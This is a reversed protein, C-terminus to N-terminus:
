KGPNGTTGSSGRRFDVTNIAFNGSMCEGCIGLLTTSGRLMMLETLVGVIAHRPCQLATRCRSGCTSASSEWRTDAAILLTVVLMRHRPWNSQSRLFSATLRMGKGQSWMKMVPQAHRTDRPISCCRTSVTSSSVWCICVDDGDVSCTESTKFYQELWAEGQSQLGQVRRRM